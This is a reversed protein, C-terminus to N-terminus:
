QQPKAQPADAQPKQQADPAAGGAPAAQKPQISKLEVTFLLTENPGIPGNAGTGRDGYALTPPLVLEWKSGVPMLQLAETWGKIVGTVPFTAPKGRKYSSDFETGDVLKGSYDCEVTDNATPKPGTGQTIIKYQLGSPLTVVGPKAKNAAQYDSGLKSNKAVEADHLVQSRKHLDNQLTTLATQMEQDSLLSKNGALADRLGRVLIDNSVDVQDKKFSESLAKGMNMGIAYSQKKKQTDLLLPAAAPKKAATTGTKAATSTQTKPTAPTTSSAPPTTTPTSSQHAFAVGSLLTGALCLTLARFTTKDM